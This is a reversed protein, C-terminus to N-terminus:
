FQSSNDIKKNDQLHATTVIIATTL